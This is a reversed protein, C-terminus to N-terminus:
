RFGEWYYAPFPTKARLSESLLALDSKNTFVGSLLSRLKGKKKPAYKKVEANKLKFEEKLKETMEDFTLIEDVLGNEKAQKATYIRGDALIKVKETELKRSKSVIEVFEDYCEDAISQMIARQEDTAPESFHGMIKNKGAHILEEKVGHKEMLATLDLFRGAIVGISGTLTNANAVIKDAACGIYYGGSAALSAFYAWVPKETEKKFKKVAEFVEASEYVGGGPSDIYLVLAATKKDDTLDEITDLLWEQNYTDNKDEIVGEIKIQAIKKAM